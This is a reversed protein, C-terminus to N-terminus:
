RVSVWASCKRMPPLGKPGAPVPLVSLTFASPERMPRNTSTNLQSSFKSKWAM